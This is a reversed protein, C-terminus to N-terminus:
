DDPPQDEPASPVGDVSDLWYDIPQSGADYWWPLDDGELPEPEELKVPEFQYLGRWVLDPDELGSVDVSDTPLDGVETPVDEHTPDLWRRFWEALSPALLEISRLYIEEEGSTPISGGPGVLYVRGMHRDVHVSLGCGWDAVEIFGDPLEDGVVCHGPNQILAVEIREHLRWGTRSALQGITLDHGSTQNPWGGEAGYFENAPGLGRGGNAVRSYLARLFPPLPFGLQAETVQLQAESAPPVRLQERDWFATTYPADGNRDVYAAPQALLQACIADILQRDKMDDGQSPM